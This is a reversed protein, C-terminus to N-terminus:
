EEKGPRPPSWAAAPTLSETIRKLTKETKEKGLASITEFIGPSVTEGTLAVRVPQALEGLKLGTEKLVEEFAEKIREESFPEIKKLKESLLKLPESIAPTLFKKAAKEEYSIKEKFYFLSSEAMEKLTKAREKLTKIIAPIRPDGEPDVGLAKLHPLLVPALGEPPTEKIYHHNLWLLKEPNFVGSSKGVSELSFKEILEEKTFIEEDGYSWGLRALYNVLAHPLYGMEKYALVSTAGHRKSLRSRDPGLIMPLHAFAPVTYGLAEYLLIQKPTNNIHDDGRIVHSIGMTADDVVVCLNYTPTSDSRLIVLDEIESHDFSIDGKIMDKFFTKGPPVSFRVASPKGPQANRTKCRGDYKPPHGQELARKRREELEEPTCFCRYALGKELLKEAHERYITFRRSQYYPGEDWDLGLWKMGELIADTSEGTSRAADTDEIRLIFEGRNRRAFLYNFLATRAGGIHLYGTPSPAFRTRVTMPNRMPNM